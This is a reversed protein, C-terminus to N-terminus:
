WDSPPSIRDAAAWLRKGVHVVPVGVALVALALLAVLCAVALRIPETM